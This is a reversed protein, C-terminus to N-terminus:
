PAEVVVKDALGVEEMAETAEARRYPNLEILRYILASFAGPAAESLGAIVDYALGGVGGGYERVEFRAPEGLREWCEAIQRALTLGFYPTAEPATIFDGPRGPRREPSLYYGHVPHYLALEMFQAFSIQGGQRAIEDRIIAILPPNGLEPARSLRQARDNMTMM